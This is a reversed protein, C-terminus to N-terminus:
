EKSDKVEIESKIELDMLSIWVVGLVSPIYVLYMFLYAYAGFMDYGEQISDFLLHFFEIFGQDVSSGRSLVFSRSLRMCVFQLGAWGLPSACLFLTWFQLWYFLRKSFNTIPAPRAFTLFPVLPISFGIAQSPNLSAIILIALGVEYCLLCKVIKWEEVKVLGMPAIVPALLYKSHLLIFISSAGFVMM